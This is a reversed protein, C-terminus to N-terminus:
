ALGPKARDRELEYNAWCIEHSLDAETAFWLDASQILMSSTAESVSVNTEFYRRYIKRLTGVATAEGERWETVTEEVFQAEEKFSPDDGHQELWKQLNETTNGARKDEPVREM